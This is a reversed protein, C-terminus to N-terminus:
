KFPMEEKKPAAPKPAPVPKSVPQMKMTPVANESVAPSAMGKAGVPPVLFIEVRRNARENLQASEVAPQFEGWGSCEIRNTAVGYGSLAKEVSIARFCSLVRNTGFKARTAPNSIPQRDTHGVIRIDYKGANNDNLVGALRGLATRAAEKVVDSGSDFTLDAALRIMGRSGDYTMLDPYQSALAELEANTTPDLAALNMGNIRESFKDLDIKYQDLQRKMEDSLSMLDANAKEVAALRAQKAALEAERQQAEQVLQDNRMQATRYAEATKDYEDVSVCGTLPLGCFSVLSSIVLMRKITQTM